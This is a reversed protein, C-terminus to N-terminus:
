AAKTSLSLKSLWSGLGKGYTAAYHIAAYGAFTQPDKELLYYWHNSIDLYLRNQTSSTFANRVEWSDVVEVIPKFVNEYWSFVADEWSITWPISQNVFYKHVSIQEKLIELENESFIGDTIGTLYRLDAPTDNMKENM